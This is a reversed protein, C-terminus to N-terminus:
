ICNNDGSANRDQRTDIGEYPTMGHELGGGSRRLVTRKCMYHSYHCRRQTYRSLFTSKLLQSASTLPLRFLRLRKRGSRCGVAQMGM